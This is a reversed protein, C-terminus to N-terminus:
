CEILRVKREKKGTIQLMECILCWVQWKNIWRSLSLLKSFFVVATRETPLQRALRARSLRTLWWRRRRRGRREASSVDWEDWTSCCLRPLLFIWRSIILYSTFYFYFPKSRGWSMPLFPLSSEAHSKCHPPQAFSGLPAFPLCSESTYTCVPAIGKNVGWLWVM